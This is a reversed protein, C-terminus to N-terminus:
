WRISVAIVDILLECVLLCAVFGADGLLLIGNIWTSRGHAQEYHFIVVAPSAIQDAAQRFATM